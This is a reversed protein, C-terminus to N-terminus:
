YYIAWIEDSHVMKTQIKLYSLDLFRNENQPFEGEIRPKCCQCLNHSLIAVILGCSSSYRFISIFRSLSIVGLSSEAIFNWLLVTPIPSRFRSLIWPDRSSQALSSSRPTSPMQLRVNRLSNSVAQVSLLRSTKSTTTCNSFYRCTSAM